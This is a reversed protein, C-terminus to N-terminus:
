SFSRFGQGILQQLFAALAEPPMGDEQMIWRRIVAASGQSFFAYLMEMQEDALAPKAKRWAAMSHDHAISLIRPLFAPDGTESFLVRCLARQGAIARLIEVLMDTVQEVELLTELSQQIERMLDAEIESLVEAPSGYHTYFTNRNIDARSCLATVTIRSVPQSRMLELLSQRLVMKTYKVRRDLAMVEGAFSRVKGM